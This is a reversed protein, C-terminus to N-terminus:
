ATQKKVCDAIFRLREMSIKPNLVCGPTYIVGEGNVAKWADEVSAKVEADTGAHAASLHALGGCFCKGPIMKRAETHSPGDDRDHWNYAQVPYDKFEEFWPDKGHMHYVNFWAKNKIAELVAMDYKKVFERHEAVSLQSKLSVQSAMFVGAAGGDVAAKAWQISTETIKELAEHVKAPNNRIHELLTSESTIKLATTLPSFVTQILPVNKAEKLFLRQSELVVAYEGETGSVPKVVNWDEPKVVLPSDAVPADYFGSFVKLPLGYDVCSFLGYPMYKVFDLDLERQYYLSKEALRRPSRDHNPFHMWMSFPMRDPKRMALATEIRERKTMSM